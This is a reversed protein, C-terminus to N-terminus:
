ADIDVEYIFKPIGQLVLHDKELLCIQEDYTSKIMLPFEIQNLSNLVIITGIIGSGCSSTFGVGKEYTLVEIEQKSILRYLNLNYSLHPSSTKLYTVLNEQYPVIQHIVGINILFSSIISEGLVIENLFYPVKLPYILSIYPDDKRLHYENKDITITIQSLSYEKNKLLHAYLCRIGNGCMKAKTGDQNFIDMSHNNYVILGDGGISIKENCLSFSLAEYSVNDEKKIILFNNGCLHYKAIKM